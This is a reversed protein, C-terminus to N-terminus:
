RYVEEITPESLKGKNKEIMKFFEQEEETLNDMNEPEGDVFKLEREIEGEPTYYQWIGDMKGLEYFGIVEPRGNSYYVYYPGNIEGGVFEGKTKQKGDEYFQEWEGHKKDNKWNLVEALNGNPYFNKEVGDKEGLIFNEVKVITSDFFSYYRWEGHKKSDIYLGESAVVGNQYYMTTHASDGSNDFFMKAKISGDDFYRILEGFPKNNKFTGEYLKNGNPYYKVWYGQKLGQNDTKNTETQGFSLLCFYIALCFTLSFKYLM